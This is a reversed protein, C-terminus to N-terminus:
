KAPEKTDKTAADLEKRLQLNAEFRVRGKVTLSPFLTFAGNVTVM